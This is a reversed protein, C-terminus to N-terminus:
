IAAVTTVEGGQTAMRSPRALTRLCRRKGHGRWNRLKLPVIPQATGRAKGAFVDLAARKGKYGDFTRVPHEKERECNSM